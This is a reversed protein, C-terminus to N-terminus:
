TSNFYEPLDGYQQGYQQDWQAILANYNTSSGLLSSNAMDMVQQFQQMEANDPTINYEECFATYNDMAGDLSNIDEFLQQLGSSNVSEGSLFPNPLYGTTMAGQLGSDNDLTALESNLAEDRLQATNLDNNAEVNPDIAAARPATSSAQATAAPQAINPTPVPSPGNSGHGFLTYALTISLVFVIALLLVIISMLMLREKKDEPALVM